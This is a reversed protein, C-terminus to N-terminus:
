LEGTISLGPSVSVILSDNQLDGSTTAKKGGITVSGDYSGTSKVLGVMAGPTIVVGSTPRICVGLGARMAFNPLSVDAKGGANDSGSAGMGLYGLDAGLWPAAMSSENGCGYRIGGFVYNAYANATPLQAYPSSSGVTYFVHQWGAFLALGKGLILGIDIQTGTGPGFVDAINRGGAISGTLWTEYSIRGNSAVGADPIRKAATVVPAETKEIQETARPVGEANREPPEEPPETPTSPPGDDGDDALATAPMTMVLAAVLGAAREYGRM